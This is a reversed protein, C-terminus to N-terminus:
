FQARQKVDLAAHKVKEYAPLLLSILIVIIALVTLLEIITLGHQNRKM